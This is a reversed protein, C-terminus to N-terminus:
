VHGSGCEPLVAWWTASPHGLGSSGSLTQEKDGGRAGGDRVRLLEERLSIVRLPALDFFVWPLGILSV